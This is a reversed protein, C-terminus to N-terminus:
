SRMSRQAVDTVDTVHMLWKIVRVLHDSSTQLAKQTRFRERLNKKDVHRQSTFRQVSSGWLPPLIKLIASNM